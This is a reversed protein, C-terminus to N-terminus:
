SLATSQLSHETEPHDAAKQRARPMADHALRVAANTREISAIKQPWADM